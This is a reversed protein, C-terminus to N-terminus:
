VIAGSALTISRDGLRTAREQDHTVIVVGTEGRGTIIEDLLACGEEDLSAHPEDLLLLAPRHLTLRALGLRQTMGRSLEHVPDHARSLLGVRDLAPHIEGRDVAYLDAALEMNQACTLDRYVLADHGLYGIKPRALRASGPLADGFLAITGNDPRLLTALMRLLTSKGAGNAGVIALCEGEPM